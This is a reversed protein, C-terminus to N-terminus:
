KLNRLIKEFSGIISQWTYHFKVYDYGGKRITEFREPKKLADVCQKVFDNDNKTVVLHKGDILDTGEIGKETTITLKGHGLAELVKVKVGGGHKLPVVVISAKDYYPEVSDVTGTVIISGKFLEQMYVVKPLPNKGVIYLKANPITKLVKSFVNTVFECVAEANAPYEMKGFFMINQGKTAIKFHNIETGIPVHLTNYRDYNREFFLKDDSSVFTYLKIKGAVYIGKEYTRMRNAEFRYILRKIPNDICDALNAMTVYEINHQGLIVKGSDLIDLPINKLMQPFDVIVYDINVEQYIEKVDKKLACITRSACAYPYKLTNILSNLRHKSRNYLCVKKCIKELEPRYLEDTACDIICCLYIDNNKSLYEIRKFTCIRGGTNAPLLM